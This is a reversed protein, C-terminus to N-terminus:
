KLPKKITNTFISPPISRNAPKMNRKNVKLMVGKNDITKNQEPRNNRFPRNANVPSGNDKM